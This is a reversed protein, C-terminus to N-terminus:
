TESEYITLAGSAADVFVYTAAHYWDNFPENDLWFFYTEDSIIEVFTSDFDSISYGPPVAPDVENQRYFFGVLDDAYPSPEIVNSIVLDVAEEPTIALASTATASLSIAILSIAILAALLTTLITGPYLRARIRGTYHNSNFM